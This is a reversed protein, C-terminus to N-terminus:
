DIYFESDENLKILGLPHQVCLVTRSTTYRNGMDSYEVTEKMHSVTYMNGNHDYIKTIDFPNICENNVYYDYSEWNNKIKVQKM